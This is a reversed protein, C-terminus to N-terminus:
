YGSSGSSAALAFVLVYFVISIVAGIVGIIM